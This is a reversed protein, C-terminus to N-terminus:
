ATLEKTLKVLAKFSPTIENVNYDRTMQNVLERLRILKEIRVHKVGVLCNYCLINESKVSEGYYLKVEGNCKNCKM